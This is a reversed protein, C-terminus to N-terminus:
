IVEPFPFLPLRVPRVADHFLYGVHIDLYPSVFGSGEAPQKINGIATKWADWYMKIEDEHGDWFPEPLIKVAQKFSEPQIKQPKATRFENEAVFVNKVYTNKYPLKYPGSKLDQAPMAIVTLLSALVTLLTQKMKM